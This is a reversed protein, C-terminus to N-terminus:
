NEGNKWKIDLKKEDTQNVEIPLSTPVIKIHNHELMNQMIM